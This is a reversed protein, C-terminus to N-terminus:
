GIDPFISSLTKPHTHLGVNSGDINTNTFNGSYFSPKGPNVTDFPICPLGYEARIVSHDTPWFQFVLTDGPNATIEAPDFAHAVRGVTITHVSPMSSRTSTSISSSVRTSSPGPGAATSLSSISDAQVPLSFCFFAVVFAAITFFVM